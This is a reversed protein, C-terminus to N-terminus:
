DQLEVRRAFYNIGLAIVVGVMGMFFIVIFAYFSQVTGRNILQVSAREVGAASIAIAFGQLAGGIISAIVLSGFASPSNRSAFGMLIGVLIIGPLQFWDPIAIVTLPGLDRTTSVVIGAGAIAGLLGILGIELRRNM